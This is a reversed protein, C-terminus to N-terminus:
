IFHYYMEEKELKPEKIYVKITWKDSHINGQDQFKKLIKFYKEIEM